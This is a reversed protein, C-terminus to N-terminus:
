LLNYHQCKQLMSTGLSSLMEVLVRCTNTSVSLLMTCPNRMMLILSSFAWIKNFGTFEEEKLAPKHNELRHGEYLSMESWFAVALIHMRAISCSVWLIDKSTPVGQTFKFSYRLQKLILIKAACYPMETEQVSGNQDYNLGHPPNIIQNDLVEPARLM